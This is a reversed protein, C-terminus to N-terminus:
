SPEMILYFTATVLDANAFPTDNMIRMRFVTNMASDLTFAQVYNFPMILTETLLGEVASISGKGENAANIFDRINRYDSRLQGMGADFLYDPFWGGVAANYYAAPNVQKGTKGDALTVSTAGAPYAWIEFRIPSMSLTKSFQMEVHEITYKKGPPPTILFESPREVGNNHWYTAKVTNGAQSSAFTIAGTVYNIVYNASAEVIDNVKVVVDWDTHKGFPRAVTPDRLTVMKYQYTLRSTPSNFNIWWANASSFLLGNGTDTLVEEVVQVSKQFWSTRDGYDHTVLSMARTGVAGRRIAVEVVPHGGTSAAQVPKNGLTKLTTEFDLVAAADNIKNLNTELTLNADIVGLWYFDGYDIWQVSLLRATVFTKLTSYDVRKILM